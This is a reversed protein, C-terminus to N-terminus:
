VTEEGNMCNRYVWVILFAIGLAIAAGSFIWVIIKFPTLRPAPGIRSLYLIPDAAEEAMDVTVARGDYHLSKIDNVATLSDLPATFPKEGQYKLIIEHIKIQAPSRGPDFRLARINWGPLSFDLVIPINTQYVVQKISENENFGKGADYFLQTEVPRSSEIRMTIRHYPPDAQSVFFGLIGGTLCLIFLFLYFSRDTKM